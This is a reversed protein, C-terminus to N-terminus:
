FKRAEEGFWKRILENLSGDEKMDRIAHDFKEKLPGDGERVGIGTGLDLNVEDGVFVLKGDSSSVIEGLYSVSAFTSDADGNLVAQITDEALPYELLEAVKGNLYDSQVTAVQVAVRGKTPDGSAGAVAVFVSPEPPYYPQTFDILAEREDTISMAAMIADYQRNRLNPIISEWDNIVWECELQVRRCLENGLEIEFGELEGSDNLYGFPPYAGETGIRVTERGGCSVAALLLILAIIALRTMWGM